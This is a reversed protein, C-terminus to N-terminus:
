KMFVLKQTNIKAGDVSSVLFYIGSSFGDFNLDVQHSGSEYYGDAFVNSLRGNVDYVSLRIDAARNLNFEVRTMNNFPNPYVSNVTFDTPLLQNNGNVNSGLGMVLIEYNLEEGSNISITYSESQTLDEVLVNGSDDLLSAQYEPTLKPVGDWLIKVEGSYEYSRVIFNWSKEGTFPGQRIDYSFNEIDIGWEEHPFYLHVYGGDIVQTMYEAAEFQDFGDSAEPAIGIFNYLDYMNLSAVELGINFMWETHQDTTTYTSGVSLNDTAVPFDFGIIYEDDLDYQEVWFGTWVPLMANLDNVQYQLNYTDWNIAYRNIIGANAAEEISMPDESQDAIQIWTDGWIIPVHFPNSIQTLGRRGDEYPHQLIQTKQGGPGYFEGEITVWPDIEIDQVVWFGLGPEQDPPNGGINIPWNQEEYREYTQLESNWRSVRWYPWGPPYANFPYGFLNVPDGDDVEIPIGEMVYMDWPYYHSISMTDTIIVTNWGDTLKDYGVGGDVFSGSYVYIGFIVEGPEPGSAIGPLESFNDITFEFDPEDASPNAYLYSGAASPVPDGFSNLPNGWGGVAECVAFGTYDVYRDVGVIYDWGSPGGSNDTDLWMAVMEGEGLDPVDENNGTLYTAAGPDGDGDADGCIRGNYDIGVYLVDTNWDYYFGARIFDWGSLVEAAQMQSTIQVDNEGNADLIWITGEGFDASVDGTFTLQGFVISSLM